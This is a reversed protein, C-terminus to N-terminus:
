HAPRHRVPSRSRPAPCWARRPTASWGSGRRAPARPRCRRGARSCRRPRASRCRARRPGSRSAGVGHQEQVVQRAGVAGVVRGAVGVDQRRARFAAPRRAPAAVDPVLLVRREYLAGCARRCRATPWSPCRCRPAARGAAPAHGAPLGHRFADVQCPRAVHLRQRRTPSCRAIAAACRAARAGISSRSASSSRSACFASFSIVPRTRRRRSTPRSKKGSRCRCTFVLQKCKNVIRLTKDVFREYEATWCPILAM